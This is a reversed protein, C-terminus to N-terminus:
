RGSKTKLRIDENCCTIYNCIICQIYLLDICINNIIITTTTTTSITESKYENIETSITFLPDVTTTLNSKSHIQPYNIGKFFGIKFMIPTSFTIPALFYNDCM